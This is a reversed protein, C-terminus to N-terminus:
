GGWAAQARTAPRAHDMAQFYLNELRDATLGALPVEGVLHGSRLILARDCVERARFLDHTSMLIACGRTRLRRILDELQGAAVPDLGSSPEDLLLVRAERLLAILIAVKQRMGKSLVDVSRDLAERELGVVELADEAARRSAPRGCLEVFFRVNEWVTLRRYLGVTEPLYGLLQRARRPEKWTDIGGVLATGATPRLFGLFLNITTTKGAGNAGLLAVAEGECIRMDLSEVGVAGDEYVKTLRHAELHIGDCM